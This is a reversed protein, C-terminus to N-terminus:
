VTAGQTERRIADIRAAVPSLSHRCRPHFPPGGNPLAGLSFVAEGQYDRSSGDLSVLRGQWPLCLECPDSHVSVRALNVGHAAMRMLSGQVAAERITTRTAMEAYTYLAWRKGARDVFGFGGDRVARAIDRDRLLEAGLTRAASRPSGDAGLMSRLAVRRGARAYTDAVTRGVIRRSERLRGLIAEQLATVAEASVGTFTADPLGAGLKDRRIVALTRDSGEDFAQNVLGRVEPDVYAGLQDLRALVVALHARRKRQTDLDGSRIADRVLRAIDRQASLVARLVEDANREADVRQPDTAM